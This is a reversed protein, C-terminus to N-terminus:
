IAWYFEIRAEFHENYSLLKSWKNVDLELKSSHQTNHYEFMKQLMQHVMKQYVSILSYMM